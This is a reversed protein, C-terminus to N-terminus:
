GLLYDLLLEIQAALMPEGGHAVARARAAEVLFATGPRLVVDGRGNRGLRAPDVPRTRPRMGFAGRGVDHRMPRSRRLQRDRGVPSVASSAGVQPRLAADVGRGALAANALAPTVGARRMAILGLLSTGGSPQVPASVTRVRTARPEACRAARM